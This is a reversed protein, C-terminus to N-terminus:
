LFVIKVLLSNGSAQILLNFSWYIKDVFRIPDAFWNTFNQYEFGKFSVVSGNVAFVQEVSEDM